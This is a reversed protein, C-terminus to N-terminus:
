MLKRIQPKKLTKELIPVPLKMDLFRHTTGVVEIHMILFEDVIFKM